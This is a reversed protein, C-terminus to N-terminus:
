ADIIPFRSTNIVPPVTAISWIMTMSSDHPALYASYGDRGAIARPSSGLNMAFTSAPVLHGFFAPIYNGCEGTQKDPKLWKM